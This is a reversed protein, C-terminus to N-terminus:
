EKRQLLKGFHMLRFEMNFQQEEKQESSCDNCGVAIMKVIGKMEVVAVGDFVIEKDSFQAINGAKKGVSGGEATKRGVLAIAGQEGCAQGYVVCQLSADVVSEPKMESGEKEEQQLNKGHHDEVASQQMAFDRCIRGPKDGQSSYGPIHKM